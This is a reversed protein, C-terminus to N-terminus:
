INIIKTSLMMFLLMNKKKLKEVVTMIYILKKIIIDPICENILHTDIDKKVLFKIREDFPVLQYYSNTTKKDKLIKM